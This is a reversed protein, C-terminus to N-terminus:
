EARVAEAPRLRLAKLSPYVATLIATLFVLVALMAFFNNDIVPYIVPEFGFDKLSDGGVMALNIGKNAFLGISGLALVTGTLSGTITLFVTELMIMSFIRRKNMGISMLMGLERTREFVAMLMTNLLGFALALLIIVLIIMFMTMGMQNYFALQPSIEAWTRVTLEPYKGAYEDAVEGALELENLVLAVQSVIGKAGLHQTLDSQLLYINMEDYTSNATQFIGAVRCSISVLENNVDQFTLVVRSGVRAKMKEALTKGMLMPNQTMEGFYDGEVINQDLRTTAAENEPDIGLINAGRTLNASAVMGNVVTRGTFARVRSDASIDERLQPWQQIHHRLHTEKLFEPNHMQVHSFEQEIGTKFRQEMLGMAMSAAFIGGWLGAAIALIMTVSRKRNRWINRWSIKVLM